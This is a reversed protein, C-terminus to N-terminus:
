VGGCPTRSADVAMEVLAAAVIFAVGVVVFVGGGGGGGVAVVVAAAPIVVVAAVTGTCTGGVCCFGFPHSSNRFLNRTAPELAPPM